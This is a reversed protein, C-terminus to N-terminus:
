KSVIGGWELAGSSQVRELLGGDKLLLIGERLIIVVIVVLNAKAIVGEVLPVSVPVRHSAECCKSFRKSM